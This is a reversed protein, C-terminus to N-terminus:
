LRRLPRNDGAHTFFVNQNICMREVYGFRQLYNGISPDKGETNDEVILLEPHWRTIDMGQLVSLEGGEVDISVLQVSANHAELLEDMTLSPIEIAHLVRALQSVRRRHEATTQVYSLTDLGDEGAPVVLKVAGNARKGVVAGQVCRSHPRQKRCEQFRSPNAEVLIGNWGAAELFYTNSFTVGDYAGIEVFFGRRQGAFFEWIVLEEGHQSPARPPLRLNPISEVLQQKRVSVLANELSENRADLEWLKQWILRNKYRLVVFTACFGVAMVLALTLPTM